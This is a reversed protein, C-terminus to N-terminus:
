SLRMGPPAMSAGETGLWALFADLSSDPAGARAYRDAVAALVRQAAVAMDASLGLDGLTEALEDMEQARRAARPALGPLIYSWFRPVSAHDALYRAMLPERLGLAEAGALLEVGLASLGKTLGAYLVKFGSAQGIEPGLVTCRLPLLAAVAEARPGSLYIEVGDPVSAAAGIIAGDVMEVGAAQLVRAAALATRPAISNLDVYLLDGRVTRAAAAVSEALPDASASPVISLVLRSRALLSKLSPEIRLGAADARERTAPSRDAVYTAVELQGRARLARGIASGMEGVGLLAIAPGDPAGPQADMLGHPQM